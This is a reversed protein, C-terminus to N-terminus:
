ESSTGGYGLAGLRSHDEASLVEAQAREGLPALEELMAEARSALSQVLEHNSPALDRLEGPDADLDFLMQGKASVVLRWREGTVSQWRDPAGPRRVQAPVIRDTPLEGLLDTGHNAPAELGLAGLITPLIDIHGVLSTARGSRVGPGHILLPVHLLEAYLSQGHSFWYDHEGLSEGHDATIVVLTGPSDALAELLRGLEHDFYRIEGEYRARYFSPRTEDELFQYQPIEGLGIQTKGVPLHAEGETPSWRVYPAPPTYPGHPDQYHVWLFFREADHEALWALAADTTSKARRELVKPRNPEVADFEDDYTLFGQSLSVTADDRMRLVWNSVIAHTRIGAASIVEALTEAAAPLLVKNSGMGLEDPLRGTMVTSLAPCTLPASAFAREFVLAREAFADLAPTAGEPAGYAGLHDARLTDCTVLVVRRASAGGDPGAGCSVLGAVLLAALAQNSRRVM